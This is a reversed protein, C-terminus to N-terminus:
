EPLIVTPEPPEGPQVPVAPPRGNGGKRSWKDFTRFFVVRLDGGSGKDPITSSIARSIRVTVFTSWPGSFELNLGSGIVREYGDGFDDGSHVFGEQVGLDARLSKGIPFAYSAEAVLGRDFHIGSANFGRVRAARFDGLEFRSFRDLSRGEFGSIGFGLKNHIGAYYSKRLDIGLRTFDRDDEEFKQGPLGWAAWDSRYGWEGWLATLWGLRAFEGRLNVVPEYNTPPLVFAPDTGKKRDFNQYSARTELSFRLFNGAPIALAARVTERLIDVEESGFTGATTANKDESELANFTGQVALSWPRVDNGTGLLNPQNWSIDCFPGAWALNFQTGTGKFDFDFWNVGAFPFSVGGTEGVSMGMVLLTNRPADLSQLTEVQGDHDLKFFTGGTDRFLPRGSDYAEQRRADFGEEDSKYDTYAAEREVALSYGLLEFNMQGNITEPLWVDGRPTSVPAFRYVVENSRLPDSLNTQVAAMKVRTFLRTDILVKGHYLSETGETASPEFGIVYCEHGDVTDRGELRYRYREDLRIDLPVESVTGPQLYPLYPPQKGRWLAGNVYMATQEYDQKGEKVFLRNETVLDVTEGLAALRYHISITAKAEYHTLRTAQIARSERERAIIEEATLETTAGVRAEENIPLATQAVRYRLVLAGPVLPLDVMAGPPTSDALRRTTGNAPDVLELSDLPSRLRLRVLRPPAAGDAAPRDSSRYIALGDRTSPDFFALVRLPVPPPSDVGGGAVAAQPDFPLAGASAPQLGRPLLARAAVLARAVADSADGAPPAPEAAPPPP